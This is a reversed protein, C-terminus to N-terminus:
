SRAGRDAPEGGDRCQRRYGLEGPEGVGAFRVRVRLRGRVGGHCGSGPRRAGCRAAIPAVPALGVSGLLPQMLASAAAGDSRRGIFWWWVGAAILLVAAPVFARNVALMVAFMAYAVAVGIAPKFAAVAVLAVLLAWFVPPNDVALGLASTSAFRMNVLSVAGIM